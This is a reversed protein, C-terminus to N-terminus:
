KSGTSVTTAIPQDSNSLYYEMLQRAIPAANGGGGGANEMVVAIAIKPNEFPAYGIFLANDKFKDEVTEADYTEDQAISKVQATGTKGAATFPAGNFATKATGLPPLTVQHMAMKVTDLWRGDGTVIQEGAMKPINSEFRDNEAFEKVLQLQFRIGDNALVASANALQLPTATWFGQGIGINVTDGMYWPENRYEKKWARSPMIGAKEEVIDLGTKEGFGFQQMGEFIKNIGLRVSLDYFFTDCSQIISDVVNMSAGHGWPKWDRYRHENNPLSFWGPDAIRTNKDIVGQQLALWALHPKITSAPAYTGQVARNYLPREKSNILASYNAQSIGGTFLNPDYSPQSVLALVGGNAPDVAVVAGRAGVEKLLENAKQQLGFDLYLHLNKGAIPDQRELVRVIRGRVDTEVKEQGVTGHLLEEYYKELGLKGMKTTAAYNKLKTFDQSAEAQQEMKELDQKNIAAMRGIAHVVDEGHPYYRELRAEVSVGPFLHRNVSFLAVQEESLKSKIPYSKYKSRFKIQEQFEEIQKQDISLLESLRSLTDDMQKRGVLEPTIELTFISRNEALLVGNRDLILGRIPAVPRIRIRNNESQTQYSEHNIVQLKFQRFFLLLLLGTVIILAIVARAYFISIERGYDKIAQKKYM